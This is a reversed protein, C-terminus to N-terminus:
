LRDKVKDELIDSHLKMNDLCRTKKDKLVKLKKDYQTINIKNSRVNTRILDQIDKIINKYRIQEKRIYNDVCSTIYKHQCHPCEFFSVTILVEDIVKTKIDEAELSFEENCKDCKVAELVESKERFKM